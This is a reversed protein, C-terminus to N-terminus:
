ELDLWTKEKSARYIAKVLEVARRTLSRDQHGLGARALTRRQTRFTNATILEAGALLYRAHIEAIAEPAELLAHTSWLPLGTALGARELETGTAGDLILPGALGALRDALDPERRAPLHETTRDSVRQESM